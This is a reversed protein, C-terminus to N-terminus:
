GPPTRGPVLPKGPFAPLGLAGSVEREYDSLLGVLRSAADLDPGRDLEARILAIQKRCAGKFADSSLVGIDRAVRWAALMPALTAYGADSHRLVEDFTPLDAATATRKDDMLAAIALKWPMESQVLALADARAAQTAADTISRGDFVVPATAWV